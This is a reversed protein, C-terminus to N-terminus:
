SLRVDTVGVAELVALGDGSLRAQEGARLWVDDNNAAETIWLMGSQVYVGEGHAHEIRMLQGSVLRVGCAASM